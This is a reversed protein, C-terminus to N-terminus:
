ETKELSFLKQKEQVSDGEQCYLETVIGSYNARLPHEMKMAELIMITDGADVSEGGAVVIKSVKGPLPASMESSNAKHHNEAHDAKPILLVFAEGQYFLTLVDDRLWCTFSYQSGDLESFFNNKRNTITAEFTEGGVRVWCQNSEYFIDTRITTENHLLEVKLEAPSNLRFGSASHWPSFTTDKIVSAVQKQLSQYALAANAIIFSPVGRTAAIRAAHQDMYKTTISGNQFEDERTLRHLLTSNTRVGGLHFRKLTERLRNIALPRDEAHVIVKALLPDYNYSIKDTQRIGTEVRVTESQEPLRLYSVTGTSPLFDREPDEAYIRAEIACGTCVVESQKLPLVKGAAVLLQWHVLDQGTIMETVPHEVQLRTNIEMFYYQDAQDVLFEVTGAGLYGVHGAARKAAQYLKERVKQPINVAPAEEVLKQHRRQMSCDREFLHLCNGFSDCFIQVEIHKATDVFKELIVEDSGFGAKAEKKAVTITELLTDPSTVVRIGRGGGGRDAKVLLPFGIENAKSILEAEELNVVTSGPIVPIGILEMEKKARSKVGMDAIVTPPPGIFCIGAKVCKAAFEPNESLFGYGPHIAEAKSTLAIQLLAKQNLYGEGESSSGLAYAEDAMEVFLTNRDEETYVAVTKVGLRRCTRIIRCGIEGRNAILIKNFM